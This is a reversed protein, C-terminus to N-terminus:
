IWFGSKKFIPNWITQNEFPQALTCIMHFSPREFDQGKTWIELPKQCFPPWKDPKWITPSQIESAILFRYWKWVLRKKVMWFKPTLIESGCQVLNAGYWTTKNNRTTLHKPKSDHWVKRFKIWFKFLQFGSWFRRLHCGYRSTIVTPIQIVFM